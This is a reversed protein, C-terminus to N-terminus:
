SQGGQNLITLIRSIARKTNRVQTSNKLPASSSQSNLKLLENRLEELRKKLESNEMQSIEKAKM